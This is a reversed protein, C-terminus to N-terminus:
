LSGSTPGHPPANALPRLYAFPATSQTYRQLTSHDWGTIRELGPPCPVNEPDDLPYRYLARLSMEATSSRICLGLRLEMTRRLRKSISAYSRTSAFRSM